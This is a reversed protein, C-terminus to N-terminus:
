FKHQIGIGLTTVTDGPKNSNPDERDFFVYPMTRKSLSYAYGAQVKKLRGQPDRQVAREMYNVTVSHPGFPVTFGVLWYPVDTRSAATAVYRDRGYIGYVNVVTFNYSAAAQLKDRFDNAVLGGTRADRSYGLGAAFKGAAYNLGVDYQRFDDEAKVPSNVNPTAPDPGALNVRARVSFGGFEPTMYGVANSVRNRSNLVKTGIATAGADHIVFDVNQTIQSYIPSGVITASDLRGLAIAGFGGALGVFANRFQPTTAIGNDAGFGQELGFAAKLGGGLDESGRMGWRSANDTLQTASGGPGKQYEVDTDIRGYLTVSADAAASLMALAGGICARGLASNRRNCIM